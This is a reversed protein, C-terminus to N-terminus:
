WIMDIYLQLKSSNLLFRIKSNGTNCPITKANTLNNVM